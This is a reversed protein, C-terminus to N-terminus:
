VSVVHVCLLLIRDGTDGGLIGGLVAAGYAVAEDPNIGRSPEKGGFFETVLQQIKPIRTSGGILVIEDIDQKQLGSDDIVSQVPKLTSRFLDLNLEEFKARTLTESFVNGKYFSEIYLRTQHNSSLARKAREVERRLKQMARTDKSVDNRTKEKYLKVFHKMVRHDFDEGGLNTDGNTALVDFTDNDITLLSVDVYAGGLDFVMINKEDEMKDMGYAIAAATAGDIFRMVNLGAITGADKTAQRQANNFYAPVSVVASYVTESLYGEAIEKMKGLVMASIEEAKFIKSMNGTSVAIQPKDNVNLVKFPFYKFDRRVSPDDWTRGIFRKVDFVTNEPNS